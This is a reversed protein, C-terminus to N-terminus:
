YERAWDQPSKSVPPTAGQPVVQMVAPTPPAFMPAHNLYEGSPLVPTSPMAAGSGRAYSGLQWQADSSPALNRFANQPVPQSVPVPANVVSPADPAVLYSTYPTTIGYKKALTVVEEVLEKNNGNLRIQTLLYGVKRRAWLEEVFDKGDKAKAPFRIQYTFE